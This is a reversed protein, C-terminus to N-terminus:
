EAFGGDFYIPVEGTKYQNVLECSEGWRKSAEMIKWQCYETGGPDLHEIEIHTLFCNVFGAITSRASINFDDLGYRTLQYMFGVKDLLRSALLTCTGMVNNVQEAYIWRQGPEHPLMFLHSRFNEDSYYPTEILDKRKLGCIGIREDRDVAEQLEDIWHNYETTCDNDLKCVHQGPEREKIALNIAAATGINETLTIVKMNPLYSKWTDLIKKTEFCSGNDVVILRHKKSLDICNM